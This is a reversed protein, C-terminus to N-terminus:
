KLCPRMICRLNVEFKTHLGPELRSSTIRHGWGSLHQSMPHTGGHKVISKIKKPQSIIIIIIIIIFIPNNFLWYLLRSPRNWYGWQTGKSLIYLLGVERM